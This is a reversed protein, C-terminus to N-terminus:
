LGTLFHNCENSFNNCNNRILDYTAATFRSRISALFDHFLERSVQTEGLEIIQVPSLGNMRTFHNAPLM